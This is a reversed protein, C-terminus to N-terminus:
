HLWMETAERARMKARLTEIGAQLSIRRRDLEELPIPESQSDPQVVELTQTEASERAPSHLSNM